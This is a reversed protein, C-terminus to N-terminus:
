EVEQIQAVDRGIKVLDTISIEGTETINGAIEYVGTLEENNSLHRKVKVIDTISINGDGSVDGKVVVDLDLINEEYENVVRAIMGTGVNGVIETTGTTDYIKVKGNDKVNINKTFDEVSTNKNINKILDSVNDVFYRTLNPFLDKSDVFTIDFGGQIAINEQNSNLSECTVYFSYSSAKEDIKENYHIKVTGNNLDKGNLNIIECKQNEENWNENDYNKYVCYNFEYDINEDFGLGSIEIDIPANKTAIYSLDSTQLYLNKNNAKLSVNALTPSDVIYLVPSESYLIEDGKKITLKYTPNEYNKNNNVAFLIGVTNLVFGSIKGRKLEVNYERESSNSNEVYKGYELVYEYTENNNFNEGIYRLYVSSYKTFVDKNTDFIGSGFFDNGDGRFASLNKKGNEFFINSTLSADKGISNYKYEEKKTIGDIDIYFEYLKADLDENNLELVLDNLEVIYTKNLYKGNVVENKTYITRDGKKIEISINYNKDEFNRGNIYYSLSNTENHFNSDIIYYERYEINSKEILKTPTNTYVLSTNYTPLSIDEKLIFNFYDYTKKGDFYKLPISINIGYLCSTIYISSSNDLNTYITLEVGNELESGKYLLNYPIGSGNIQYLADDILNEGTLKFSINQKNNLYIIKSSYNEEQIIEDNGQKIESIVIKSDKIEDYYNLKLYITKSKYLINCDWDDCVKINVAFKNNNNNNIMMNNLTLNINNEINNYYFGSSFSLTEVKIFYKINNNINELNFNMDVEDYKDIIYNGNEDILMLKNGQYLGNIKIEIDENTLSFVEIVYGFNQFLLGICILLNLIKKIM